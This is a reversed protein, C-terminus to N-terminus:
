PSRTGQSAWRVAQEVLQLFLPQLFTRFDHGPALYVVRGAGYPKVWAMPCRKGEFAASLLIHIAAPDHDTVYLEDVVTFAPIGQTIPHRPDDVQIAFQQIPPHTLFRGGIMQTFDEHFFAAALHLAVCGKGSRVFETVAHVHATTVDEPEAAGPMSDKLPSLTVLVDYEALRSWPFTSLTYYTPQTGTTPSSGILTVDGMQQATFYGMLVGGLTENMHSTTSLGIVLIQKALTM